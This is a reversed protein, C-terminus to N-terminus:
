YGLVLFLQDQSSDVINLSSIRLKLTTVIKLVLQGFIGLVIASDVTAVHQSSFTATELGETIELNFRIFPHSFVKASVPGVRRWLRTLFNLTAQPQPIVDGMIRVWKQPRGRCNRFATSRMQCPSPPQGIHSIQNRQLADNRCGGRRVQHTERM